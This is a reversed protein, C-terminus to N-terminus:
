RMTSAKSYSIQNLQWDFTLPNYLIFCYVVLFVKMPLYKKTLRYLAILLVIFSFIYLIILGLSYPIGMWHIVALWISFGIGKSFTNCNYDGLWNLHSFNFAMQTLLFDDELWGGRLFLPTKVALWIRILTLAFVIIILMKASILKDKWWISLNEILSRPSTKM